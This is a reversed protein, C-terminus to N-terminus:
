APPINPSSRLFYTLINTKPTHQVSSSLYKEIRILKYVKHQNDLCFPTNINQVFEQFSYSCSGVTQIKLSSNWFFCNISLKCLSLTLTRHLFFIVGLLVRFGYFVTPMIAFCIIVSGQRFLYGKQSFLKKLIIIGFPIVSIFIVIPFAERLYSRYLVKDSAIQEVSGMVGHWGNTLLLLAFITPLIYIALIKRNFPKRNNLFIWCLVPWTLQSFIYAISKIYDLYYTQLSLPENVQKLM